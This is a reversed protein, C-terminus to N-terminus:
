RLSEIAQVLPTWLERLRAVWPEAMRGSRLRQEVDNLSVWEYAAVELCDPLVTSSEPVPVVYLDFLASLETFRGIPVLAAAPVALGTEEHLERSAAAASTEGTLVSGGPFEWDLPFEKNAARQTLLVAGDRRFACTAVVVHFRGDPWGPAGRRYTEGTPRGDEDTVDWYEDMGEDCM